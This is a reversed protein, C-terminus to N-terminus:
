SIGRLALLIGKAKDRTEQLEKEPDSDAVIGAGARFTICNNGNVLTRILISFDLCGDRSIYGMSGTYAGRGTLELEAIIEMCRVKPCGTITGGPFVAKIIDSPSINKNLEGRINSVIHHVHAYSELVMLENVSITGPVCIKGLDNRELDILMIHEAREKPHAILEIANLKDDITKQSRPRTGAIPRTEVINNRVKILREPSSSIISVDNYQALGFFPSPNKAKLARYIARNSVDESYFSQWKRSLNVQFVDGDKIYQKIKKVNTLYINPDDEILSDFPSIDNDAWNNVGECQEIDNAINNLLHAHEQEAVALLKNNIHDFILAAHVRTAFAIPLGDDALPLCLKPEIVNALEYSAYVFWGGIFPLNYDNTEVTKNRQIWEDLLSFFGNHASLSDEIGYNNSIFDNSHQKVSLTGNQDLAVSQSPYAFLLSFVQQQRDDTGTYAASDLLYPYCEPKYEHLAVFDIAKDIEIVNLM